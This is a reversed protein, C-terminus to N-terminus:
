RAKMGGLLITHEANSIDVSGTSGDRFRVALNTPEFTLTESGAGAIAASHEAEIALLASRAEDSLGSDVLHGIELLCCLAGHDSMYDYDDGPVDPDAQLVAALYTKAQEVLTIELKNM